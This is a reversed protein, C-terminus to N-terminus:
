RRLNVFDFNVSDRAALARAAEAQQALMVLSQRPEPHLSVTIPRLGGSLPTRSSMRAGALRWGYWPPSALLTASSSFIMTQLLGRGKTAGM